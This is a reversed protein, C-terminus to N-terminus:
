VRLKPRGKRGARQPSVGKRHRDLVRHTVLCAPCFTDSGALRLAGCQQCLGHAIRRIQHARQRSQAKGQSRLRHILLMAAAECQEPTPTEIHSLLRRIQDATTM